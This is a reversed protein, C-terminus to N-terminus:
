QPLPGLLRIRHRECAASLREHDPPTIPPLERRPAPMGAERAMEIFGDTGCLVLMRVPTRTIFGHATGRPIHAYGGARLEIKRAEGVFLTLEGELVYFAEDEEDHAHLPTHSGAPMASEVVGFQAGHAKAAKVTLLNDLFWVADGEQAELTHPQRAPAPVVPANANEM